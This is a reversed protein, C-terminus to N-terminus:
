LIIPSEKKVTIDRTTKMNAVALHMDVLNKDANFYNEMLWKETDAFEDEPM